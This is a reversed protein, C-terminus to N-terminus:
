RRNKRTRKKASKKAAVEARRRATKAARRAAKRANNSPVFAHATARYSSLFAVNEPRKEQVRKYTNTNKTAKMGNQFPRRPTTNENAEELIPSLPM